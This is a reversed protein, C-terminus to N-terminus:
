EITLVWLSPYLTELGAMTPGRLLDHEDNHRTNLPYGKVFYVGQDHLAVSVLFSSTSPAQTYIAVLYVLVM